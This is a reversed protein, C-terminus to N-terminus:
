RVRGESYALLVEDQMSDYKDKDYMRLKMLDARRFIKTTSQGTGGKETATQKVKERKSAAKEERNDTPRTGKYMGLIESGTSYDGSNSAAQWISMMAPRATLFESFEPSQVTTLWDPHNEALKNQAKEVRSQLVEQELAKVTPNNALARNIAEAPNDLLTDVDLAPEEKVQDGKQLELELLQDTLKRLEGIENNKRGFEKELNVYADAIEEPSKGKFKSPIEIEPTEEEPSAELEEELDVETSDQITDKLGDEEQEVVINTM